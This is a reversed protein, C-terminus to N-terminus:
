RGLLHALVACVAWPVGAADNIYTWVGHMAGSECTGAIRKACNLVSQVAMEVDPGLGGENATADFWGQDFDDRLLARCTAENPGGAPILPPEM